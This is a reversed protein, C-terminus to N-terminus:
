RVKLEAEKGGEAFAMIVKRELETIPRDDLFYLTPSHLVLQKRLGSILRVCPNSLLYISVISPLSAVFPVINEKDNIKNAKLDLHALKPLEKLQDCDTINEIENHSLDVTMLELCNELGEVVKIKNHSLNLISLQSFSLLNEMKPIQNQHLYLCKMGTM